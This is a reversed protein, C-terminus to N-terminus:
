RVLEVILKGKKATITVLQGTTFGADELWNGKLHLAPHKGYHTPHGIFQCRM